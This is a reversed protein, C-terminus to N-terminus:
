SILLVHSEHLLKKKKMKVTVKRSDKYISHSNTVCVLFFHVELKLEFIQSDKEITKFLFETITFM